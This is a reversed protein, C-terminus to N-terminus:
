WLELWKGCRLCYTGKGRGLDRLIPLSPVHQCVRCEWLFWRLWSIM